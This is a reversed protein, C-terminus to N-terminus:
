VTVQPLGRGECVFALMKVFGVTDIGDEWVWSSGFLDLPLSFFDNYVLGAYVSFFGMLTIMYKGLYRASQRDWKTAFSRCALACSISM